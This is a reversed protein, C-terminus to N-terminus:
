YTCCMILSEVTLGLALCLRVSSSLAAQSPGHLASGYASGPIPAGPSGYMFYTVVLNSAGKSNAEEAQIFPDPLPQMIDVPETLPVGNPIAAGSVTLGVLLIKFV